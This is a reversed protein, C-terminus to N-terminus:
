ATGYAPRHVALPLADSPRLIASSRECTHPTADVGALSAVVVASHDNM